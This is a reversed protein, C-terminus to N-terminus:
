KKEWLIRYPVFYLHLYVNIEHMVPAVLPQMRIVAESGIQWIDGPVAEDCIVPILQGMDMTLMKSYSLNFMSRAPSLGGTHKYITM